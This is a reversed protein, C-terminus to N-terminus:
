LPVLGIVVASSCACAILVPRRKRRDFWLGVPIAIVIVPLYRMGNLLGVEFVTAHLTLIAVLPLAFLTIQSGIQSITEGAWLKAFDSSAFIGWRPPPPQAAASAESAASVVQDNAM